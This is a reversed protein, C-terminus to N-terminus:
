LRWTYTLKVVLRQEGTPSNMAVYASRTDTFVVYVFSLPLFEWALRANAVAYNGSTDRQYSGILQLKPSLALRAEGLLLHTVAADTVVDQGTFRNLQYRFFLAVHPIPQLGAQALLQLGEARYYKGGTLNFGASVVRSTESFVALGFQDYDYTGKPVNLGPIPSFAQTLVQTSHQASFWMRDGGSSRFWLPEVYYNAEQFSGDRTSTVAYVEGYQHVSRVWSPLWKPRLDFYWNVQPVLVESRGIFGARAEYDTTIGTLSMSVDGWNGQLRANLIGAGGIKSSQGVLQTLSGSGVGSVTFAGFRVLGDVAPVLNTVPGLEGHAFDQRMVVMGGVHSESGINHNYRAVGFLSGGSDTTSATNVVLAGISNETSRSIVRAGVNLPVPRGQEDLGITRSFFPQFFGDTPAFVGANELFFQRREPLFVSFRGLNVVRRDVDTEAFDTNVTLDVVTSASPQWTVEGGATPAVSIARADGRDFRVIGYPRLQADLLKPETPELGDLVGAYSMRFPSFARPYPSWASVEYDRRTQRSVQFGFETRGKVTRLSKWPIALEVTYGGADRTVASKWVTDWKEEYLEDDIVQVDLQAGYPNVFFGFANRGDGVTDLSVGFFDNVDPDFDRRLDLQQIGAVGLPDNCRAGIYLASSDFLVKVVTARKPVEGQNPDVVVFPSLPKAALWSAEDIVGDISMKEETRVAHARLKVVPPAFEGQQSLAFLTVLSLLM